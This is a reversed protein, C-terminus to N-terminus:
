QENSKVKEKPDEPEEGFETEELPRDFRDLLWLIINLSLAGAVAGILTSLVPLQEVVWTDASNGVLNTPTVLAGILALLWTAGWLIRDFLPSQRARPIFLVAPVTVIMSLIALLLIQVMGLIM